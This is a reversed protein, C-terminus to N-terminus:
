RSGKIWRTMYGSDPTLKDSSAAAIFHWANPCFSNTVIVEGNLWRECLDTVPCIRCRLQVADMDLILVQDARITPNEDIGCCLMMRRRRSTVALSKRWYLLAVIAGFFIALYLAVTFYSNDFFV